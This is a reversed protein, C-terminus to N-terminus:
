DVLWSGWTHTFGAEGRKLAKGDTPPTVAAANVAADGYLHDFGPKPTAAAKAAPKPRRYLPPGEPQADRRGRVIPYTDFAPSDAGNMPVELANAAVEPRDADDAHKAQADVIRAQQEASEARGAKNRTQALLPVTLSGAVTFLIAVALGDAARLPRPM